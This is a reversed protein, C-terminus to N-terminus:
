QSSEPQLFSLEDNGRFRSDLTEARTKWAWLLLCQIVLWAATSIGALLGRSHRAPHWATKLKAGDIPRRRLRIWNRCSPMMTVARKAIVTADRDDTKLGFCSSCNKM